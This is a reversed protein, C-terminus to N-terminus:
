EWLALLTTHDSFDEFVYDPTSAHLEGVPHTGTAVAITKAGIAKGCRVDFPTDGIVWIKELAYKGSTKAHVAELASRAVDDRNTYDDGFGGFEFYTHLGYRELKHFAGRRTNGTLLGLICDDRQVLEKLVPLIGPLVMGQREKLCKPLWTLYIERFRLWEEPTAEVGHHRMLDESIARDTRGEYPVGQTPATIGFAEELASEMAWKGAGGSNILTGDIDFLCIHM